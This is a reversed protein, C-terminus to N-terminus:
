WCTDVLPKRLKRGLVTKIGHKSGAAEKLSTTRPLGVHNAAKLYEIRKECVMNIGESM